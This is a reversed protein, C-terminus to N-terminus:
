VRHEGGGSLVLTAGDYTTQAKEEPFASLVLLVLVVITWLVLFIKGFKARRIGQM